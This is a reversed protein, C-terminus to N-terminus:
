EVAPARLLLVNRDFDLAVRFERLFNLGVLGHIEIGATRIHQLDLVCTTLAEASAAGVGFSDVEVFRVSGSSGIGVGTGAIGSAEPLGLRRALAADVCTLTAGTDLAFDFPGEGNIHVPVLLAGGGPGGMRFAVEGAASDAPAHVRAPAAQECAALLLLLGMMRM